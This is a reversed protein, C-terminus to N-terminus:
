RTAEITWSLREADERWARVTYCTGGTEITDGKAPHPYDAIRAVLVADPRIIDGGFVPGEVEPSSLAVRLAMPAGRGQARLTADAAMNRDALMVALAAAFVKM